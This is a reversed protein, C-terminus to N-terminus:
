GPAGIVIPRPQVYAWEAEIKDDVGLRLDMVFPEAPMLAPLTSAPTALEQRLESTSVGYEVLAKEPGGLNPWRTELARKPLDLKRFALQLRTFLELMERHAAAEDDIALEVREEGDVVHMSVQVGQIRHRVVAAYLLLRTDMLQPGGADKLLAALDDKDITAIDFAEVRSCFKEANSRLAQYTQELNKVALELRLADQEGITGTLTLVREVSACKSRATEITGYRDDRTDSRIAELDATIASLQRDIRALYYQLTVASAVESAALAPALVGSFEVGGFRLQGAFDKSAVDRAVGLNGPGSRILEL